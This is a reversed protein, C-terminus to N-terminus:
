RLNTAVFAPNDYYNNGVISWYSLDCFGGLTVPNAYCSPLFYEFDNSISDGSLSIENKRQFFHMKTNKECLNEKPPPSGDTKM